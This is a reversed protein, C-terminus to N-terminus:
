VAFPIKSKLKIKLALNLFDTSFYGKGGRIKLESNDLGIRYSLVFTSVM